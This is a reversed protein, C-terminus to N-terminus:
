SKQTPQSWSRTTTAIAQFIGHQGLLVDGVRAWGLFPHPGNLSSHASKQGALTSTSLKKALAGADPM